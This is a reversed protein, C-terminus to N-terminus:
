ICLFAGCKYLTRHMVTLGTCTQGRRIRNEAHREATHISPVYHRKQTNATANMTGPNKQRSEIICLATHLRHIVASFVQTYSPLATM